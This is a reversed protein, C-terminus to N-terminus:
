PGRPGPVWWWLSGLAGRESGGWLVGGGVERAHMLQHVLQRFVLTLHELQAVIVVETLVLDGLGEANGGAGHLAAPDGRQAPEVAQERRILVM